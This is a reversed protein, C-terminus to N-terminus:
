EGSLYGSRKVGMRIYDFFGRIDGTPELIVNIEPPVVGSNGNGFGEKAFSPPLRRLTQCTIEGYALGMIDAANFGIRSSQAAADALRSMQAQTNSIVGIMESDIGSKVGLAINKGVLDRFLKSPSSIGLFGTVTNVIGQFFRTVSSALWSGMSSIGAWVGYVINEGVSMFNPILSNFKSLIISIIQEPAKIIEKIADPLLNGISCFLDYGAESMQLEGDSFAQATQETIKPVAGTIESIIEPMNSILSTFFNNGTDSMDPMFGIIKQKVTNTIEPVIGAIRGVIHPTEGILSTFLETGAQTMEPNKGSINKIVGNIINPVSNLVTNITKPMLIFSSSLNNVSEIMLDSGSKVIAGMNELSAKFAKENLEVDITITGDAM